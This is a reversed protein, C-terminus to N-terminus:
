GTPKLLGGFIYREAKTPRGQLPEGAAGTNERIHRPARRGTGLARALNPFAAM